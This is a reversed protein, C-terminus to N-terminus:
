TFGPRRGCARSESESGLGELGQDRRHTRTPTVSTAAVSAVMAPHRNRPKGWFEVQVRRRAEAHRASRRRGDCVLRRIHGARGAGIVIAGQM